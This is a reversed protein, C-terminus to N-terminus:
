VRVQTETQKVFRHSVASESTGFNDISEPLPELSHADKAPQSQGADPEHRPPGASSGALRASPCRRVCSRQM